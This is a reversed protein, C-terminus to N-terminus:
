DCPDCPTGVSETEACDQEQCGANPDYPLLSFVLEGVEVDEQEECFDYTHKLRFCLQVAYENADVVLGDYELKSDRPTVWNLLKQVLRDRVNEFDYYAWFPSDKGDSSVYKKSAIWFEILIDQTVTVKRTKVTHKATEKVLTVLIIPLAPKVDRTMEMESVALSRNQFEPFWVALNAALQPLTGPNTNANVDELTHGSGQSSHTSQM